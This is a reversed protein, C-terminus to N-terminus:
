GLKEHECCGKDFYLKQIENHMSLTSDAKKVVEKKKVIPVSYKEVFYAEDIDFSQLLGSDIKWDLETISKPQIFEFVYGEFNEGHTTLLPLIKDNVIHNAFLIDAKTIANLVNEHVEGQARTGSTGTDSTLTQGLILKSLESNCREVLKDYVQYADGKATELFKIDEGNQMIAYAASGMDKLSKELRDLDENNRTNTIGVRMPMGFIETYESWCMSANKKWLVSPAAKALLGFDNKDGVEVLWDMLPTDRYLIGKTDTQNIVYEGAEPRVHRRPVLMVNSVEGDNFDFQILSHGYFLADLSLRMCNYFWQKQLKQTKEEDIKKTKKDVIKFDLGLIKLVRTQIQASLHNDLVLEDYLNYLLTRRPIEKSEAQNLARRWDAVDRRIRYNNQQVLQAVIDSDKSKGGRLFVTKQERKFLRDFWGM